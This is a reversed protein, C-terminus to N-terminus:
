ASRLQPAEYARIEKLLDRGLWQSLVALEKELVQYAPRGTKPCERGCGTFGVFGPYEEDIYEDTSHHAVHIRPKGDHELEIPFLWCAVPKYAWPEEGQTVALNQLGCWGNPQRFICATDDFHAPRVGPPYAHPRTNTSLEVEGTEEDAEEDFLQEPLPIGQATFFDAHGAAVRRITEPEEPYYFGAGGSCCIAHCGKVDCSQYFRHFSAADLPADGYQARFRDRISDAISLM